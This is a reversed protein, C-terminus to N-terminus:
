AMECVIRRPKSCDIASLVGTKDFGLCTGSGPFSAPELSADVDSGLRRWKWVGKPTKYADVGFFDFEGLETTCTNYYSTLIFIM